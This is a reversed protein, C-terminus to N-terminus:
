YERTLWTWDDLRPEPKEITERIFKRFTKKYQKRHYDSPVSALDSKWGGDEVISINLCDWNIFFDDEPM